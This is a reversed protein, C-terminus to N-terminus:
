MERIQKARKDENARKEKGRQAERIQMAKRQEAGSHEKGRQEERM